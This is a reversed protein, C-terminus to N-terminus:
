GCPDLYGWTDNSHVITLDLASKNPPPALPSVADPSPLPNCSVSFAAVAGLLVPLFSASLCIRMWRESSSMTV